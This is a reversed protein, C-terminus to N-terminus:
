TFLGRMRRTSCNRSNHCSASSNKDAPRHFAFWNSVRALCTDLETARGSITLRTTDPKTVLVSRSEKKGMEAIEINENCTSLQSVNKCYTVLDSRVFSTVSLTAYLSATSVVCFAIYGCWLAGVAAAAFPGTGALGLWLFAAMCVFGATSVALLCAIITMSYMNKLLRQQKNIKSSDNSISALDLRFGGRDGTIKTQVIPM